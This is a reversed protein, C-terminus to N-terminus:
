VLTLLMYLLIFMASDLFGDIENLQEFFDSSFPLLYWIYIPLVPWTDANCIFYCRPRSVYIYMYEIERISENGKTIPRFM